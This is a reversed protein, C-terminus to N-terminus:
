ISYVNRQGSSFSAHDVAAGYCFGNTGATSAVELLELRAFSNATDRVSTGELDESVAGPSKVPADLLSLGCPTPTDSRRVAAISKEETAFL